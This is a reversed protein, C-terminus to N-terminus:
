CPAEIGKTKDGKLYFEVPKKFRTSAARGELNRMLRCGTKTETAQMTSPTTSDTGITMHAQAVVYDLHVKDEESTAQPRVSDAMAIARRATTANADWQPDTLSDLVVLAGALDVVPAPAPTSQTTGQSVAEGATSDTNGAGGPGLKMYAGVGGITVVALALGVFMPMKSREPRILKAPEAVPTSKNVRTQPVARTADAPQGAVAAAPKKPTSVRGMVSTFANTLAAEPMMTVAKHLSRGFEAASQYRDNADRQLAKDMVAQVEPPWNVDAKMEALRKPSETLRMIMSEQVTDAPFPLKGTFM